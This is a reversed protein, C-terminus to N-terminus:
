GLFCRYFRPAALKHQRGSFIPQKDKLSCWVYLHQNGSIHDFDVIDPAYIHVLM